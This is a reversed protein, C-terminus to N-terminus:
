KTGLINYDLNIHKLTSKKNVTHMISFLINKWDDSKFDDLSVNYTNLVDDFERLSEAKM